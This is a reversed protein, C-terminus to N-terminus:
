CLPCTRLDVYSAVSLPKYFIDRFQQGLSRRVCMLTAGLTHVNWEKPCGLCSPSLSGGQLAGHKLSLHAGPFSASHPKLVLHPVKLVCRLSALWTGYTFGNSTVHSPSFYSTLISFILQLIVHFPNLLIQTSLSRIDPYKKIILVVESEMWECIDSFTKSCPFIHEYM